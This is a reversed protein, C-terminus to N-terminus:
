DPPQPELTSIDSPEAELGPPLPHLDGFIYGCAACSVMLRGTPMGDLDLEPETVVRTGECNPCILWDLRSVEDTEM